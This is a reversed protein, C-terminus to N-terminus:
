PTLVLIGVQDRLVINIASANLATVIPTDRKVNGSEGSLTTVDFWDLRSWSSGFTLPVSVPGNIIDAGTSLDVSVLDNWIVIYTRGDKKQMVISRMTSPASVVTWDLPVPTFNKRYTWASGNWSGDDLKATINRVTYYSPRPTFSWDCLGFDGASTNDLLAYLGVGKSLSVRFHEMIGRGIYKSQANISVRGIQYGTESCYVDRNPRVQQIDLYAQSIDPFTLVGGISRRYLSPKRRDSYCHLTAQNCFAEINTAALADAEDKTNQWNTPSIIQGTWGYGVSQAYSWIEAQIDRLDAPWSSGSCFHTYENPGELIWTKDLGLNAKIDELEADVAADGPVCQGSQIQGMVVAMMTIGGSQYLTPAHNPTNFNVGTRAHRIRLNLLLQHWAVGAWVSSGGFDTHINMFLWEMFDHTKRPTTLVRSRAWSSGAAISALIGAALIRRNLKM